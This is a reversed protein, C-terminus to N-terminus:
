SRYPNAISSTGVAQVAASTGTPKWLGYHTAVAVIFTALGSTLGQGLDYTVGAQVAALLEAGLGAVLSLTALLLSKTAASTNSTTVLGVLVPLVFAVLLNLLQALDLHFQIM